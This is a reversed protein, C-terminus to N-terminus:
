FSFLDGDAIDTVGNLQGILTVDAAAITDATSAQEVLYLYGNSGDNIFAIFGDGIAVASTTLGDLHLLM